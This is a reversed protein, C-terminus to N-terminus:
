RLASGCPASFGECNGRVLNAVGAVLALTVSTERFGARCTVGRAAEIVSRMLEAAVIIALLFARHRSDYLVRLRKREVAIVVGHQNQVPERAARLTQAIETFSRVM